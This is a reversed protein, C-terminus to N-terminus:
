FTGAVGFGDIRLSFQSPPRQELHRRAWAAMAVGAVLFGAGGITLGLAARDFREVSRWRANNAKQRGNLAEIQEDSTAASLTSEASRLERDTKTWSEHQADSILFVTLAAIESALGAAAIGYGARQIPLLRRAGDDRGPAVQVAAPHRSPTEHGSTARLQISLAESASTMTVTTNSAEHGPASIELWHTGVALPIIRSRAGQALPRGDVVIRAASPQVDLTLTGVRSRQRELEQAIREREQGDLDAGEHELYRSLADCAEVPRGTAVYAMGLNYLVATSGSLEHAQEFAIVAQEYSGEQAFEVGRDFLHSARELTEPGEGQAAAWGPLGLWL